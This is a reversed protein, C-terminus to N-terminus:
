SGSKPGSWEIYDALVHERRLHGHELGQVRYINVKCALISKSSTILNVIKLHPSEGPEDLCSSIYDCSGEHTLSPPQVTLPTFINCQQSRLLLFPGYALSLLGGRSVLFPLFVIEGPVELSFSSWRGRSKLGTFGTDSMQDEYSDSLVNTNSWVM